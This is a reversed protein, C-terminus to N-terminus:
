YFDRMHCYLLKESVFEMKESFGNVNRRKDENEIWEPM